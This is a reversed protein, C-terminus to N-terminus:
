RGRLYVPSWAPPPADVSCSLPPPRALTRAKVCYGSRYVLGLAANVAYGLGVAAAAVLAGFLLAARRGHLGGLVGMTTLNTAPGTLSKPSDFQHIAAIM